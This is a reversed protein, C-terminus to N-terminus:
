LILVVGQLLKQIVVYINKDLYLYVLDTKPIVIQMYKYLTM